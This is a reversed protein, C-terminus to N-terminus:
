LDSAAVVGQGTLDGGEQRAAKVMEEKGGSRSRNRSGSGATSCGPWCGAVAVAVAVPWPVTMQRPPRAWCCYFAWALTSSPEVGEEEGPRPRGEGDGCAANIENRGRQGSRRGAPSSSGAQGKEGAWEAEAM